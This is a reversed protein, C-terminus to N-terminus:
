MESGNELVEKRNNMRLHIVGSIKCNETKKNGGQGM